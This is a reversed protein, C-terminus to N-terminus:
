KHLHVRWITTRSLSRAACLPQRAATRGARPEPGLRVSRHLPVHPLVAAHDIPRSHDQIRPDARAHVRRPVPRLQSTLRTVHMDPVSPNNVSHKHNKWAIKAFHEKKTGACPHARPTSWLWPCAQFPFTGYKEMHERGANGFMQPAAPAPAFGRAEVMVGVHKDM